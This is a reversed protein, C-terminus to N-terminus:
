LPTWKWNATNNSFLKLPFDALDIGLFSKLYMELMIGRKAIIKQIIEWVKSETVPIRGQHIPFTLACFTEWAINKELHFGKAPSRTRIRVQQM